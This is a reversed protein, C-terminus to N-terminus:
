RSVFDLVDNWVTQRDTENLIEHRMGPYLRSNVDEYGVKRMLDVASDFAKVSAKCPDDAGSLFLIPMRTNKMQWGKRSYCDGMVGMLNAFGNATFIYQCLPDENYAKLIDKDSCVWANPGDKEFPKNFAGFSMNQLLQPRFHDGKILAFVRALLKGAGKAPNDTPCGSVILKEICDDYRKAYSRAVMSGMSHGLLYVPVGPYQSRIYDTVIRVDNVMAEWGGKYMFGLDASTKVSAGHGRHDHIICVFGNASMFEMFPIYREKHECMGHSIQLIGKVNGKTSTHDQPRTILGELTLGDSSAKVTFTEAAM